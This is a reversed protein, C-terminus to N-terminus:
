ADVARNDYKGGEKVSDVGVVVGEGCLSRRILFTDRCIIASAASESQGNEMRWQIPQQQIDETRIKRVRRRGEEIVIYLAHITFM